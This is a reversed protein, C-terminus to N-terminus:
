QAGKKQDCSKYAIKKMDILNHCQYVIGMFSLIFEKRTKASLHM